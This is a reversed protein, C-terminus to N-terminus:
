VGALWVLLATFAAAGVVVWAGYSRTNGSHVQRLGDGFTRAADALHNVGGDITRVDVRQWFVQESLWRIPRVIAADYLEDVYWKNKLLTHVPRFQEALRDASGMRRSYMQWAVLFGAVSVAVAVGMLMLELQYHDGTAAHSGAAHAERLSEARAFVPSLYEEFHDQGHWLVPAAM